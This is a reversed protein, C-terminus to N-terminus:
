FLWYFGKGGERLPFPKFSSSPPPYRNLMCMSDGALTDHRVYNLSSAYLGGIFVSLIDHM